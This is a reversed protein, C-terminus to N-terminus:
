MTAKPKLSGTSFQVLLNGVTVQPVDSNRIFGYKLKGSM